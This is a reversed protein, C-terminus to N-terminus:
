GAPARGRAPAAQQPEAAPGRAAPWLQVIVLDTLMIAMGARWLIDGLVGGAVVASVLFAVVGVIFLGREFVRM